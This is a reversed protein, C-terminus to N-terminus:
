RSRARASAAAFRRPPWTAERSPACSRYRRARGELMMFEQLREATEALQLNLWDLQGAVDPGPLSNGTVGAVLRDYRALLARLREGVDQLESITNHRSRVDHRSVAPMVLDM